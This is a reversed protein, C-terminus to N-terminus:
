RKQTHSKLFTHFTPHSVTATDDLIDQCLQRVSDETLDGSPVIFKKQTDMSIIRVTPADSESVGFYKLVHSLAETVDITIFLM